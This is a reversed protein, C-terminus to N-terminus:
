LLTGRFAPADVIVPHASIQGVKFDDLKSLVLDMQQELDKISAGLTGVPDFIASLPLHSQVTPVTPIRGMNTTNFTPLSIKKADLVAFLALIDEM